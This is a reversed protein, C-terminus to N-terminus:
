VIEVVRRELEYRSCATTVRGALVLAEVTGDWRPAIAFVYEALAEDGRITSLLDVLDFLHEMSPAGVEAPPTVTRVLAAEDDSLAGVLRSVQEVLDVDNITLPEGM